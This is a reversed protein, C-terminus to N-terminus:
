YDDRRQVKIKFTQGGRVAFGTEHQVMLSERYPEVDGRKADAVIKQRFSPLEPMEVRGIALGGAPLTLRMYLRDEPFSGVLNLASLAETLNEVRWLYSKEQRLASLHVEVGGVALDYEGDRLDAPLTFRYSSETYASQGRYHFWRVRATVTEGPKYVTRPLQVREIRAQRATPEINVEIKVRNVMVEGYPTNTISLVPFMLDMEVGITGMQSTFNDTRFTGVGDFDVQISYRVTHEDPLTNHAYISENLATGLLLATVIRDRAVQYHYTREGRVDRVAVEVDTLSPAQGRVGFVGTAEDGWLTGVTELAAGMKNSRMVSPIVTHVMGTALPLEVFGKGFLSHGFGLVRDGVVETCTGLAELGLDGSMLPVCLVSGPALQVGNTSTADAGGAAGSAVLTLGLREFREALRGMRGIAAGSVMVPVALPRLQDAPPPADAASSWDAPLDANFVSFRSGADVPEGWARAYLGGLSLGSGGGSSPQSGNAGGPAAPRTDPVPRKQPDRVGEIPLMQTIPQVGCIPDKNFSWGYAVAGIMRERGDAERVYCPSGSMGGVIGSHELNLGSCRILIVDQKAYWANKMVSIVEFEFTQIETGAVVTRGFGTMGRRVEEPAMYRSSDAQAQVRGASVIAGVAALVALARGASGMRGM